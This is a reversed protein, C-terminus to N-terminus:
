EDIIRNNINNLLAKQNLNYLFYKHISDFIFRKLEIIKEHSLLNKNKLVNLYSDALFLTMDIFITDKNKKYLGLLITLNDIFNKEIFINNEEFIYNFKIYNGPTLQSSKPDIVLNIKYKKILSDIIGSRKEEDLIIKFELCRSKVTEILPKTKNNILLFYNNKTPEEITKLLANLSKNNFLEVEDLIIFRPNSDISSQFIKEKLLRVDEIQSNKFNSGSLYILNSYINNIFQNYFKSESSYEYNKEDYNEKDHIYFILHNILTSKGSGKKGSLMLVKPLKNNTYLRKLFLFDEILGFLNLSKKSDFYIPLTM